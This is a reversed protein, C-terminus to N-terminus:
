IKYHEIHSRNTLIISKHQISNIREIISAIQKDTQLINAVLDKNPAKNAHSVAFKHMEDDNLSALLLNNNTM